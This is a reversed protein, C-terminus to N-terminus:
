ANGDHQNDGYIIRRAEETLGEFAGANKARDYADIMLYRRDILTLSPTDVAAKYSAWFEDEWSGTEHPSPCMRYHGYYEHALVARVSMLDRASFGYEVDPFVNGRIYIHRTADRFGTMSGENFALLEKPIGIAEAEQAVFAIEDETLIHDIPKRLSNAMFRNEANRM